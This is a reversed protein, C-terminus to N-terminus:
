APKCLYFQCFKNEGLLCCNNKTFTLHFRESYSFSIIHKFINVYDTITQSESDPGKFLQWWCYKKVNMHHHQLEGWLKWVRFEADLTAAHPEYTIFVDSFHDSVAISLILNNLRWNSVQNYVSRLVISSLHFGLYSDLSGSM